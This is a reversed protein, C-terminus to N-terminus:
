LGVIHLARLDLIDQLKTQGSAKRLLLSEFGRFRKSEDSKLDSAISWSQWKEWEHKQCTVISIYM